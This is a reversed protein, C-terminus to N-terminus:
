AVLEHVRAYQVLADRALCAHVVPLQTQTLVYCVYRSLMLGKLSRIEAKIQQMEAAPQPTTSARAQGVGYASFRSSVASLADEEELLRARVDSRFSEMTGNFSRMARTPAVPPIPSNAESEHSSVSEPAGLDILGDDDAEVDDSVSASAVRREGSQARAALRLTHQLTDLASRLPATVDIPALVKAPEPKEEEEAPEENELADPAKESAPQEDTEGEKPEAADDKEDKADEAPEKPEEAESPAEVPADVWEPEYNPPLLKGIRASRLGTVLETLKGFQELQLRVLESRADIMQSLRPLVYRRYLAVGIAAAGGGFMLVLHLIRFFEILVDYRPKMLTAAYNSLVENADRPPTNGTSYLALPSTPYSAPPVPPPPTTEPPEDFARKARDYLADLSHDQTHMSMYADTLPLNEPREADRRAREIAEDSLGKSQLFERQEDTLVMPQAADENGAHSRLTTLFRVAQAHQADEPAQDSGM